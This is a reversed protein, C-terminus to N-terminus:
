NWGESNEGMWEKAKQDALEFNEWIGLCDWNGTKDDAIWVEWCTCEKDGHTECIDDWPQITVVHKTESHKWVEMMGRYGLQNEWQGIPNEAIDFLLLGKFKTM